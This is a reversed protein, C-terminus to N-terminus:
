RISRKKNKYSIDKYDDIKASHASFDLNNSISSVTYFRGCAYIHAGRGTVVPSALFQYDPSYIVGNSSKLPFM